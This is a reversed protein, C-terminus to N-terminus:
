PEFLVNNDCYLSIELRHFPLFQDSTPPSGSWTPMSCQLEPALSQALSSPDHQWQLTQNREPILTSSFPQGMGGHSSSNQAISHIVNSHLPVLPSLLSLACCSDISRIIGNAQMKQRGRGGESSAIVNAFRRGDSVEPIVQNIREHDNTLLVAFERNEVRKICALPNPPRLRGVLYLQEYSDHVTAPTVDCFQLITSGLNSEPSTFLSEPRSKRRRRNHGDLRKRCSRKEEDFEGLAHFRSCQQCFRQEEGRIIVVPDKSHHECVRHRRYYERYKGLDSKCGDVSCSIRANGKAMAPRKMSWSPPSELQLGRSNKFKNLSKVRVNRLGGHKSDVSLGGNKQGKDEVQSLGLASDESDLDM